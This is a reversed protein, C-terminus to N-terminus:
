HVGVKTKSRTINWDATGRSWQKRMVTSDESLSGINDKSQTKRINEKEEEEEEEEKEESSSSFRFDGTVNNLLTM